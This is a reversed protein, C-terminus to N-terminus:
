SLPGVSVNTKLTFRADIPAMVPNGGVFDLHLHWPGSAWTPQEGGSNAPGILRIVTNKWPTRFAQYTQPTATIAYRVGRSVAYSRAPDVQAQQAPDDTGTDIGISMDTPSPAITLRSHRTQWEIGQTACGSLAGALLASVLLMSCFSRSPMMTHTESHVRAGIRRFSASYAILHGGGAARERPFVWGGRLQLSEGL